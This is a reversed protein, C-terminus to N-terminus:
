SLILLIRLIPPLEDRSMLTVRIEEFATVQRGPQAQFRYRM